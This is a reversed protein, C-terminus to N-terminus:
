FRRLISLINHNFLQTLFRKDASLTIIELLPEMFSAHDTAKTLSELRGTIFEQVVVDEYCFSCFDELRDFFTEDPLKIKRYSLQQQIIKSAPSHNVINEVQAQFENQDQILIKYRM